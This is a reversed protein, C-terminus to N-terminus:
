TKAVYLPLLFFQGTYEPSDGESWNISTNYLKGPIM